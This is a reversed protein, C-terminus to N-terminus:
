SSRIICYLNSKIITKVKEKKDEILPFLYTKILDNWFDIEKTSLLEVTGKDAFMEDEIWLPNRLLDRKKTVIKDTSRTIRM